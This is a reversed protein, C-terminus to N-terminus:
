SHSTCLTRLKKCASLLDSASALQNNNNYELKLARIVSKVDNENCKTKRTVQGLCKVLALHGNKAM